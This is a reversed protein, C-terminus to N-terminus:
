EDIKERVSQTIGPTDEVNDHKRLKEERKAKALKDLGFLSPKKFLHDDNTKKKKSIILGGIENGSTGELRDHLIINDNDNSM